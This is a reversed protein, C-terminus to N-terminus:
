KPMQKLITKAFKEGKDDSFRLFLCPEIMELEMILFEGEDIKLIDVRAYFQEFKLSKLINQGLEIARQCPRYETLKSHFEEQSRFEGERPTKCIAHSFEGDFFLMSIEGYEQIKSQFPQVFWEGKLDSNFDEISKILQIGESSAGVTPKIIIGQGCDSKKFIEEINNKNIREYLETPILPFGDKQLELLYKKNINWKITELPNLLKTVSEIEELVNIFEDLRQMYDWTTRVLVLDYKSWDAKSDWLVSEVLIGSDTLFKIFLHDDINTDQNIESCTLTAIKM